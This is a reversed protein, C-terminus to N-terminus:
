LWDVCIFYDYFGYKLIYLYLKKSNLFTNINLRINHASNERLLCVMVM